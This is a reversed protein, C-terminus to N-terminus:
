LKAAISMHMSGQIQMCFIKQNIAYFSLSNFKAFHALHAFISLHVRVSLCSHEHEHQKANAHDFM